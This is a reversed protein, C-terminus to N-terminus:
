APPMPPAAPGLSANCADLDKWFRRHIWANEDGIQIKRFMKGTDDGLRQHSLRQHFGKVKAMSLGSTRCVVIGRDTWAIAYYGKALLIWYSLLSWAPNGRQAVFVHRIQEGPELFGAMNAALKDRLAM